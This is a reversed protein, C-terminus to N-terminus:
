YHNSTESMDGLCKEEIKMLQNGKLYATISIDSASEDIHIDDSKTTYTKIEDNITKFQLRIQKIVDEETQAFSFNFFVLQIFTFIIKSKM